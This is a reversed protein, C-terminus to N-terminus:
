GDLNWIAGAYAAQGTGGLTSCAVDIRLSTDFKLFRTVEVPNRLVMQDGRGHYAAINNARAETVSSGYGGSINATTFQTAARYIDGLVARTDFTAGNTAVFTYAVGDITITFTTTASALMGPGIIGTLRGRGTINVINRTGTAPNATQYDGVGDVWPWFNAGGTNDLANSYTINLQAPQIISLPMVRPDREYPTSAPVRSQSKSFM